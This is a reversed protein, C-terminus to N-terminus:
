ELRPLNWFSRLLKIVSGSMQLSRLTELGSEGLSLEYLLYKGHAITRLVHVPVSVFLM